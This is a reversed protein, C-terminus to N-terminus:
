LGLMISLLFPGGGSIRGLAAALVLLPIVIFLDTIRMLLAELWGRFYGAIVGITTGIVSSLIGVSFAIMLSIQSGRMVLAFYDKGTNDQGFPHEGLSLPWLSLTPEGGNVVVASEVYSKDWW